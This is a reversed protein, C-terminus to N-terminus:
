ELRVKRVVGVDKVVVVSFCIELVSGPGRAKSNFSTVHAPSCADDIEVVVTKRVEKHNGAMNIGLNFSCQWLVGIFCRAGNIPVQALTRELFEDLLSTRTYRRCVTTSSASESVEVVVSIDVYQDDIEVLRGRKQAIVEVTLGVPAFHFQFAYLGISAGNSGPHKDVISALGLRLRDQTLGAKERAAIGAQMETQPAESRRVDVHIPWDAQVFSKLLDRSIPEDGYLVPHTRHRVAPPGFRLCRSVSDEGAARGTYPM